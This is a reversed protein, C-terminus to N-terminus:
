VGDLNPVCDVCWLQKWPDLFLADGPWEEHCGTCAGIFPVGARRREDDTYAWCPKNGAIDWLVAGGIRTRLPPLEVRSPETARRWDILNRLSIAGYLVSSVIFGWQSTFCAYAFWLVQAALGIAWGSWHRRGALYLGTVGVAMLLWSWLQEM